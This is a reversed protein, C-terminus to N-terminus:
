DWIWRVATIFGIVWVAFFGVVMYIMFAGFAIDRLRSRWTPPPRGTYYEDLEPFSDRHRKVARQGPAQPKAPPHWSWGDAELEHRLAKVREVAEPPYESLPRHMPLRQARAVPNPYRTSFAAAAALAEGTEPKTTLFWAAGAAPLDNMAAYVEGLLLLAEADGRRTGLTGLLRDRAM